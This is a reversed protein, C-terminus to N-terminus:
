AHVHKPARWANAEINFRYLLSAKDDKQLLGSNTPDLLKGIGDKCAILKRQQAADFFCLRVVSEAVVVINHAHRVYLRSFRHLIEGKDPSQQVYQHLVDVEVATGSVAQLFFTTSGQLALYETLRESVAVGTSLGHIKSAAEDTGSVLSRFDM